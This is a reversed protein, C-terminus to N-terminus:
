YEGEYSLVICALPPLTLNLSHPRDMWYIDDAWISVSGNGLNSGGYYQSDSNMIERYRGALPVGIRYNERPV